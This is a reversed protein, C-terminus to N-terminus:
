KLVFWTTFFCGGYDIWKQNFQNIEFYVFNM